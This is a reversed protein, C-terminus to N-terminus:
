CIELLGPRVELLNPNAVNEVDHVVPTAEYGVDIERMLQNKNAANQTVRLIVLVAPFM